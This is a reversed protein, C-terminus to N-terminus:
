CYSIHHQMSALAWADSLLVIAKCASLIILQFFSHGQFSPLYFFALLPVLFHYYAHHQTFSISRGKWMRVQKGGHM